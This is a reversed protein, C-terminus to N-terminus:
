FRRREACSRKSCCCACAPVSLAHRWSAPKHIGKARNILFAGSPLPDPWSVELGRHEHFWELAERHEDPLTGLIDSLQSAM